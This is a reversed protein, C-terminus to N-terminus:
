WWSHQELGQQLAPLLMLGTGQFVHSPARPAPLVQLHVGSNRPVQEWFVHVPFALLFETKTISLFFCICIFCWTGCQDPSPISVRLFIFIKKWPLKLLFCSLGRLLSTDFYLLTRCSVSIVPRETVTSCLWSQQPLQM